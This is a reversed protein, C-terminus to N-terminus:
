ASRGRVAGQDAHNSGARALWTPDLGTGECQPRRREPGSEGIDDGADQPGAGPADRPAAARHRARPCDTRVRSERHVGAGFSWHPAAQWVNPHEKEPSVLDKASAVTITAWQASQLWLM